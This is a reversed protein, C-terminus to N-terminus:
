LFHLRGQLKAVQLLQHCYLRIIVVIHEIDTYDATCLLPCLLNHGQDHFRQVFILGHYGLFYARMYKVHNLICASCTWRCSGATLHTLCRLHVSGYIQLKLFLLLILRGSCM